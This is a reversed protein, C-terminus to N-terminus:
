RTYVRGKNGKKKQEKMEEESGSQMLDFTIRVHGAVLPCLLVSCPSLVCSESSHVFCPYRVRPLPDRRVKQSQRNPEPEPAPAPATPKRTAAGM